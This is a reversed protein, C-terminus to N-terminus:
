EQSIVSFLATKVADDAVGLGLVDNGKNNTDNNQQGTDAVKNSPDAVEKGLEGSVADSNQSVLIFM